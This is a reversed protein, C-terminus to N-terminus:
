KLYVSDRKLARKLEPDFGGARLKEAGWEEILELWGELRREKFNTMNQRHRRYFYLPLPLHLFSARGWKQILRLYLDYEEWYFSRYGGVARVRETRFMTGCAILHYLSETGVEIKKQQRDEIEYRDSYVCSASPNKDLLAKELDLLESDITDDSDVRVFYRGRARELGVNCSKALGQNGQTIVSIRGSYKKLVVETEDTSGDNIVIVEYENVPLMQSLVSELAQDLYKAQNHTATIVSISPSSGM